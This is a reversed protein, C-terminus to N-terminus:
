AACVPRQVSCPGNKTEVRRHHARAACTEMDRALALWAPVLEAPPLARKNWGFLCHLRYPLGVAQQTQQELAAVARVAAAMTGCEVATPQVPVAGATWVAEHLTAHQPTFAYRNLYLGSDGDRYYFGFGWLRLEAGACVRTYQTCGQQGDPPRQREFGLELLLNGEARRVDQGWLWCQQNLLASGRKGLAFPLRM